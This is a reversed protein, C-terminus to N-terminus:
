FGNIKELKNKRVIKRLEPFTDPNKLKYFWDTNKFNAYFKNRFINKKYNIIPKELEQRFNKEVFKNTDELIHEFFTMYFFNYDKNIKIEYSSFLYWFENELINIDTLTKM